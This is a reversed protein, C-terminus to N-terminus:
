ETEGSGIKSSSLLWIDVSGGRDSNFAIATGDPSWAPRQDNAPGSTLQIAQGGEAPIAWIDFSGDRDSHFALWRGDPSWTPFHDFSESVTVRTAASDSVSVIWLDGNGSSASHYAIRSGDPSWRPSHDFGEFTTLQTEEGGDVGISWLDWNGSRNSVFAIRRGDPSWCPAGDVPGSTLRTMSGTALDLIQIHGSYGDGQAVATAVALRSGDPSWWTSHVLELDATLRVADGGNRAVTWVNWNGDRDSAFSLTRGDPSWKPEIDVAPHSTLQRLEGTRLAEIPHPAAPAPATSTPGGAGAFSFPGLASVVLTLVKRM